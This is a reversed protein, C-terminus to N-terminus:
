VGTGSKKCNPTQVRRTTDVFEMKPLQDTFRHTPPDTFPHIPSDTFRHTPSDTFRHIPPHIIPVLILNIKDLDWFGPGLDWTRNGIDANRSRAELSSSGAEIVIVIVIV